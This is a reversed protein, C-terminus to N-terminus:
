VLDCLKGGANFFHICYGQIVPKALPWSTPPSIDVSSRKHFLKHYGVSDPPSSHHLPTLDEQYFRGVTLHIAIM